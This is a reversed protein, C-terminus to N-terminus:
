KQAITLDYLAKRSLQYQAAAQKVADRTSAGQEVLEEVLALGDELTYAAEQRPPAGEVVLM